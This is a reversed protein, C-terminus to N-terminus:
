PPTQLAGFIQDMLARVDSRDNKSYGANPVIIMHIHAHWDGEAPYPTVDFTHGRTTRQARITGATTTRFGEYTRARDPKNQQIAIQAGVGHVQCDEVCIERWVVSETRNKEPDADEPFQFLEVVSFPFRKGNSVKGLVLRSVEHQNLIESM